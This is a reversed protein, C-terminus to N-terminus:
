GLTERAFLEEVSWDRTLLGQERHYRLVTELVKRHREIGYPWFDDGLLARNREQLSAVWPIMLSPTFFVSGARYAADALANEKGFAEVLAMAVWPNRDYVERRIVVTHMIPFIGTRRFYDREVAEYDVFL